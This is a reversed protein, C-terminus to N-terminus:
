PIVVKDGLRMKAPDTIGNAKAIETWRTGDGYYKCAMSWLTDAQSRVIAENKQEQMDPRPKLGSSGVSKQEAVPAVNLPRYEKLELTYYVDGDGEPYKCALREIACALNVGTGTIILRVPKKGAKWKELRSVYGQPSSSARPYFPSSSGPFFSELTLSKLGRNGFLNIEGLEVLTVTQNLQPSAIEVSKPNVPLRIAERRNNYSLEITREM